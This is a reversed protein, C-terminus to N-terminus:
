FIKTHFDDKFVIEFVIESLFLIKNTLYFICKTKFHM